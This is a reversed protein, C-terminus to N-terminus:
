PHVEFVKDEYYLASWLLWLEVLVFQFSSRLESGLSRRMWLRLRLGLCSGGPRRLDLRM